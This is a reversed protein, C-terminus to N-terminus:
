QSIVNAGIHVPCGLIYLQDHITFSVFRCKGEVNYEHFTLLLYQTIWVHSINIYRIYLTFQHKRSFNKVFKWYKIPIYFSYLYLLSPIHMCLPNLNSQLHFISIRHFPFYIDILYIIGDQLILVYPDTHIKYSLKVLINNLIQNSKM